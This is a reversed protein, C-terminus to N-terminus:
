NSFWKILWRNTPQKTPQSNGQGSHIIFFILTCLWVYLANEYLLSVVKCQLFWWSIFDRDEYVATASLDFDRNSCFRETVCTRLLSVCRVYLSFVSLCLVCICVSPRLSLCVSASLSFLNMTAHGSSLSALQGRLDCYRRRGSDANVNSGITEEGQWRVRWPWTKISRQEYNRNKEGTTITKTM